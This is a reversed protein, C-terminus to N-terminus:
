KLGKEKGFEIWLSELEEEKLKSYTNIAIVLVDTDNVKMMVSKSNQKSVAQHVHMFLRTDAEEHNCPSLHDEEIPRNKLCTDDKTIVVLNDECMFAIKYALYSYM